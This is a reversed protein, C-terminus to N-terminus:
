GVARHGDQFVVQDAIDDEVNMDMDKTVIRADMEHRYTFPTTICMYQSGDRSHSLVRKQSSLLM